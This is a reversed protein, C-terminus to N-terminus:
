QQNIKKFAIKYCILFKLNAINNIDIFNKKFKEKDFKVNEILPFNLKVECSCKARLYIYDYDILDCNEECLLLNNKIFENRRDKLCIDTGYISTYIYCIDNYYGSKPNYIDISDKIIVPILIEIKENKCLTLNLIMLNTKNIKHYVEYEVKPIKMGKEEINM